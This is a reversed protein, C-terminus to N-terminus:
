PRPRGTISPGDSRRGLSWHSYKFSGLPRLPCLCDRGAFSEIPMRVDNIVGNPDECIFPGQEHEEDAIYAVLNGQNRFISYVRYVAKAELGLSAGTAVVWFRNAKSSHSGLHYCMHTSETKHLYTLM